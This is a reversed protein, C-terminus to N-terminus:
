SFKKLNKLDEPMTYWHVPKPFSFFPKLSNEEGGLSDVLRELEQYKLKLGINDRFKYSNRAYELVDKAKKYREEMFLCLALNYCLTPVYSHKVEFVRERRRFEYILEEFLIKAGIYNRRLLLYVGIGNLLLIDIESGNKRVERRVWDRSYAIIESPQILSLHSHSGLKKILEKIPAIKDFAEVLGRGLVDKEGETMYRYMVDFYATYMEGMLGDLENYTKYEQYSTIFWEKDDCYLASLMEGKIEIVKSYEASFALCFVPISLERLVLELSYAGVPTGNEIRSITAISRGVNYALEEQTLGEFKRYSRILEGLENM